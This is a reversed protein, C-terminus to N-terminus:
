LFLPRMHIFRSQSSSVVSMKRKKASTLQQSLKELPDVKKFGRVSDCVSGLKREYVMDRKIIKNKCLPCFCKNKTEKLYDM